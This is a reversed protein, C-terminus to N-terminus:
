RTNVHTNPKRPSLSEISVTNRENIPHMKETSHVTFPFRFTRHFRQGERANVASLFNSKEYKRVILYTSSIPKRYNAFRFSVFRFPIKRFPVKRFPIKRFPIKRFPIKRFPIKRFPVKRFPVKRFPIKRFQIKRFPIKRFPVQSVEKM